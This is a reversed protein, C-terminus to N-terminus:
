TRALTRPLLLSFDQGLAYNTRAGTVITANAAGLASVAILLSIFLAGPEGVFRRMLDAAVAESSAM